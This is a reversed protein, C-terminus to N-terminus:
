TNGRARIAEAAGAWRMSDDSEIMQVIAEREAAAVLQAFRQLENSIEDDNDPYVGGVDLVDDSPMLVFFGVERAMRIVDERNM